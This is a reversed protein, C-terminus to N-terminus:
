AAKDKSHAGQAHRTFYHYSSGALMGVLAFFIFPFLIAVVVTVAGVVIESTKDKKQALMYLKKLISDVPEPVFIGLAMGIVLFALTTGIGGFFFGKWASLGGLILAAVTSIESIYRRAFHHFDPLNEKIKNFTNKEM